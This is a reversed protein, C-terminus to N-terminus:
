GKEPSHGEHRDNKPNVWITIQLCINFMTKREDNHFCLKILTMERKNRVVVVVVIIIVVEVDVDSKLLVIQEIMVEVARRSM